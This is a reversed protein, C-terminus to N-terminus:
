YINYKSRPKVSIWVRNEASRFLIFYLVLIIYGTLISVFKSINYKGLANMGIMNFICLTNM